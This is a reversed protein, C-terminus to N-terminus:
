KTFLCVRSDIQTLNLHYKEALWAMSTDCYFSVHTPDVNYHWNSFDISDNYRDTMIALIGNANLLSFLKEFESGPSHFHEAVETCTIVDYSKKLYQSNNEYIPDYFDVELQTLLTHMAPGPGCGYDLVTQHRHTLAKKLPYVLRNLFKRYGIDEPDNEHQDYILKEDAISLRFTPKLFILKCQQCRYFEKDSQSKAGYSFFNTASSHCLPCAQM